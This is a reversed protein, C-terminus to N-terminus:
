PDLPHRISPAGGGWHELNRRFLKQGLRKRSIKANRDVYQKMAPTRQGAPHYQHVMKYKQPMWSWRLGSLSARQALDEDESGWWLFDEDVGRVDFWWESVAAQCCGPSFSIPGMSERQGKWDLWQGADALQEYTWGPKVAGKILSRNPCLVYLSSSSKLRARLVTM